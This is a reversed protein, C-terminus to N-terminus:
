RFPVYRTPLPYTCMGLPHLRMSEKIVSDLKKMNQMAVPSFENNHNGLVTQIEERLEQVLEPNVALNYFRILM